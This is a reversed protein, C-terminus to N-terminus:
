VNFSTNTCTQTTETSYVFYLIYCLYVYNAIHVLICLYICIQVIYM